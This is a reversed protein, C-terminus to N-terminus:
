RRYSSACARLREIGGWSAFQVAAEREIREKTLYPNASDRTGSLVLTITNPVDWGQGRFPPKGRVERYNVPERDKGLLSGALAITGEGLEKRPGLDGVVAFKIKALDTTAVVVLDGVKANRREFETPISRSVRRPLVIAPTVMSDAYRAPNCSDSISSNVLATASVLFGSQEPCPKGDPGNPIIQPDIKTAALDAQQWGGAKAKETLIRRARLEQDNMGACKDSMANCLNNVASREGWFDEVKYSRKAGDTNVHLSGGFLISKNEEAWVRVTSRGDDDQQLFSPSMRCEVALTNSTMATLMLMSLLKRM